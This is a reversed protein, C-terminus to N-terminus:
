TFRCVQMWQVYVCVRLCIFRKREIIHKHIKKCGSIERKRDETHSDETLGPRKVWFLAAVGGVAANGLHFKAARSRKSSVRCQEVIDWQFAPM